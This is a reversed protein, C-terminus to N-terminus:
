YHDVDMASSGVSKDAAFFAKVFDVALPQMRLTDPHMVGGPLLLADFDQPDAQDLQVDVPFEEGWDSL